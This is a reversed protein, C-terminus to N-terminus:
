RQPSSPANFANLRQLVPILLQTIKEHGADNPHMGDLLLAAVGQPDDRFAQQVDVLPVNERRALDRVAQLYEPLVANMGDERTVDYPPKGYLERLKPTWSMPNPTMLIVASGGRRVADMIFVLNKQYTQVNVRPSSEPPKKWLDVAADNLGFQVIVVSPHHALVDKELRVKAQETNNGPVGANIVTVGLASALRAAYPTIGQRPATTSDGFAVV